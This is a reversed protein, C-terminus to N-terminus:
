ISLWQSQSHKASETVVHVPQLKEVHPDLLAHGYDEPNGSEVERLGKQCTFHMYLRRQVGPAWREGEKGTGTMSTTHRQSYRLDWIASEPENGPSQSPCNTLSSQSIFAALLGLYLNLLTAEVHPEQIHNMWIRIVKKKPYQMSTNWQLKRTCTVTSEFAKRLTCNAESSKSQHQGWTCRLVVGALVRYRNVLQAKLKFHQVLLVVHRWSWLVTHIDPHTKFGKIRQNETNWGIVNVWSSTSSDRHIGVRIQIAIM